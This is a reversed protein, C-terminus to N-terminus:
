PVEDWRQPALNGGLPAIFVASGDDTADIAHLASASSGPPLAMPWQVAPRCGSPVPLPASCTPSVDFGSITGVGTFTTTSASVWLRWSTALPQGRLAIGYVGLDGFCQLEQLFTGDTRIIQVRHNLADAVYVRDCSDVAIAHPLNFEKEGTGPQNGPASWVSRVVGTAPEISLVRNNLGSVDGDTVWMLGSRDFGVDTVKDFQVPDLGSGQSTQGCRGVSGQYVGSLTFRKLCHGFGTGAPNPPAMDTVWAFTTGGPTTQFRISHPDGLQDTAWSALFNGAQGWISVAPTGRQVMFLLDTGPLRTMWSVNQFGFTGQQPFTRDQVYEGGARAPGGAVLLAAAVAAASWARRTGGAAPQGPEAGIM